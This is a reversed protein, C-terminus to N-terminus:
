SSWMENKKLLVQWIDLFITMEKFLVYKSHFIVDSIFEVAYDVDEKFVQLYYCTMDRATYRIQFHDDDM